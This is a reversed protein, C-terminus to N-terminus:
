NIIPLSFEIWIERGSQDIRYTHDISAEMIDFFAWHASTLDTFITNTGLHYRITEPNAVRGLIRNVIVVAEARTIASDPRFNGDQHGVVWGKNAATGIYSAAWHSASVDVFNNQGSAGGGFFRVMIATFEARTISANPRFTGDPYGLLINTHALYNIAQTYWSGYAVDSFSAPVSNFKNDDELLRFIIMAVEARTISTDARMTGDPFGHIFRLHTGVVYEPEEAPEVVPRPRAPGGILGPGPDRGPQQPPLPSLRWVAYVVVDEDVITVSTILAPLLDGDGTVFVRETQTLSWGVFSVPITESGDVVGPHSMGTPPITLPHTGPLLGEQPVPPNIGGNANYIIAFDNYQSVVGRQNGWLAVMHEGGDPMPFTHTRNAEVTFGPIYRDGASNTPLALFDTHSMWGLFTQRPANGAYLVVDLGPVIDHTAVSATTDAAIVTGDVTVTMGAPTNRAQYSVELEDDNYQSVVGRQNGWLAVMHEGGDPMPFTHTRNAEVTFGPIYRDGDSNTPLALFDTHSMWGLFTQRPANGAYLVVDLGPVIDHTGVSATTDAAIVTGDVTVTMGAPTNRAQYSVELSSTTLINVVATGSIATGDLTATVNNSSGMVATATATATTANPQDAASTAPDITVNSTNASSWNIVFSEQNPMPNGFQNMVVATLEESEGRFVYSPTPTVNISHAIDRHEINVTGTASVGTSVLTATITNSSGAEAMLTATATTSNPQGAPNTAPAVTVNAPTDSTWNIVFNEQNPMDNGFQDVVIATFNGSELNGLTITAPEIRISHAAQLEFNAVFTLPGTVYMAAIEAETIPNGSHTWGVFTWGARAETVPPAGIPNGNPTRDGTHDDPHRSARLNRTVSAEGDVTGGTTPTSPNANFIVDHYRYDITVEVVDPTINNPVSLVTREPLITSPNSVNSGNVIWSRAPTGTPGWPRYTNWPYYTVEYRVLSTQAAERVPILTGPDIEINAPVRAAGARAVSTIYATIDSDDGATGVTDFEVPRLYIWTRANIDFNNFLHNRLEVALPSPNVGIWELSGVHPINIRNQHGLNEDVRMGNRAVNGDFTVGEAIRIRNTAAASPLNGTAGTTALNVWIGGGDNATNNTISANDRIDLRNEANFNFDTHIGGGNGGATNGEIRSNGNLVISSTGHNTTGGFEINVGGGNGGARNNIIAANDYMDLRSSNVGSFRWVTVGGGSGAASNGDITANDRMILRGETSMGVGGTGGNSRNYAIRADNSMTFTRTGRGAGAIHYVISAVGGAGGAASFNNRVTGGSMAFTFTSLSGILIVGGGGGGGSPGAGSHTQNYAITGGTMERTRTGTSSGFISLGGGGRIGVPWFSDGLPITTASTVRNGIIDGDSFLFNRDGVFVGGGSGRAGTMVNAYPNDGTWLTESPFNAPFNAPVGGITGGQIRLWGTGSAAFIGGGGANGTGTTAGTATNGFIRAGENITASAGAALNIGGGNAARNNSITSGAHMHLHATDGVTVGGGVTTPPMGADLPRTLTVNWLHLQRSGTINIHRGDGGIRTISFAQDISDTDSFIHVQRSTLSGTGSTIPMAAATSINIDNMLQVATIANTAALADRLQVENTVPIVIADPPINVGPPFGSFPVIMRDAELQFDINLHPIDTDRPVYYEVFEYLWAIETKFDELEVVISWEDLTESDFEMAAFYYQGHEDTLVYEILDERFFLSVMAGELLLYSEHDEYGYYNHYDYDSYTMFEVIVQGGISYWVLNAENEDYEYLTFDIFSHSVGEDSIEDAINHLGIIQADFGELQSKIYWGDLDQANLELPAIFYQGNVDTLANIVVMENSIISVSAGYLALGDQDVVVGSISHANIAFENDNDDKEYDYENDEYGYDYEGDDDYESDDDGYGEGYDPDQEPEQEYDYETTYEYGDEYSSEYGVDQELSLEDDVSGVVEAYLEMPVSTFFMIMALAFSIIRNFQNKTTKEM